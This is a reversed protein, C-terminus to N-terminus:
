SLWFDDGLDSETTDDTEALDDNNWLHSDEDPYGYDYNETSYDQELCDSEEATWTLNASAEDADEDLDFASFLQNDGAEEQPDAAFEDLQYNLKACYHEFTYQGTVCALFGASASAFYKIYESSDSTNNAINGLAQVNRSSSNSQAPRALKAFGNIFNEYSLQGVDFRKAISGSVNQEPPAQLTAVMFFDATKWAHVFRLLPVKKAVEGYAPDTVIVKVRDYIKEDIIEPVEVASILVAHNPLLQGKVCYNNAFLLGDLVDSHVAAIIRHGQQLEVVINFINAKEFRGVPVGHSELLAGVHHIKTGAQDSYIGLKKADECLEEETYSQGFDKLILKEACIACSYDYLQRVDQSKYHKSQLGFHREAAVINLQKENTRRGIM